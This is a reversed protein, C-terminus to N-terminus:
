QWRVMKTQAHTCLHAGSSSDTRGYHCSSGLRSVSRALSEHHSLHTEHPRTHNRPPCPSTPPHLHHAVILTPPAPLRTVHGASIHCHEPWVCVCERMCAHAPETHARRCSTSHSHKCAHKCEHLYARTHLHTHTHIHTRTNM